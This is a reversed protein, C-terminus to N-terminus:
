DLKVSLVNIRIPWDSILETHKGLPSSDQGQPRERHGKGELLAPNRIFSNPSPRRCAQNL